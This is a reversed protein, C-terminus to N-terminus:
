VILTALKEEALGQEIVELARSVGENLTEVKNAVYLVAAANLVVIDRRSDKIVGSFIGKIVGANEEPTGGALESIPVRSFKLSEPTITYATIKTHCLEQVLTEGSLSIEDLKPSPACVVMARKIGINRLTEAIVSLKDPESVGVLQGELTVPNTLPGLFNFITRIGIERRILGVKKTAAHFSPAHLFAINHSDLSAITEKKSTTMSIGLAGLVDSSGSQSTISRNSHKAITVGGASALIAAATSVNITSAMDGGTGCCDYVPSLQYEIPMAKDRLAKAFGTLEEVTEGKIKLATLLAAIQADRASDDIFANLAQYAESESLDNGDVVKNTLRKLM